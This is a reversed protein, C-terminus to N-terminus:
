KGRAGVRDGLMRELPDVKSSVQVKSLGALEVEVLYRAEGGGEHCLAPSRRLAAVLPHERVTQDSAYRHVETPGRRGRARQAAAAETPVGGPPM